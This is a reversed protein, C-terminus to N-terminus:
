ILLRGVRAQVCGKRLVGWLGPQNFCQEKLVVISGCSSACLEEVHSGPAKRNFCHEYTLLWNVRAQVGSKLMVELLRTRNFCHKKFLLLGVRTQM